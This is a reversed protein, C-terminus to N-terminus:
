YENQYFFNLRKLRNILSSKYVDDDDDDLLIFTKM